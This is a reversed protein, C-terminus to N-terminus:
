CRQMDLFCFFFISVFPSRSASDELSGAGQKETKHAQLAGRHKGGSEVGCRSVERWGKGAKAEVAAKSWSDWRKMGGWEGTGVVVAKWFFILGEVHRRRQRLGPEGVVLAAALLVDAAVLDDEGGKAALGGLEGRGDAGGGGLAGLLLM